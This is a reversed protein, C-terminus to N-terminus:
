DSLKQICASRYIDCNPHFLSLLQVNIHVLFAHNLSIVTIGFAVTYINFKSGCFCFNIKRSKERVKERKRESLYECLINAAIHM